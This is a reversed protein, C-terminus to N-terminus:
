FLSKQRSVGDMLELISHTVEEIQNDTLEKVQEKQAALFVLVSVPISLADSIAEITSLSPDRKEKEVLCLHSVSIGARNALESQKYGRKERILKITSGLNMNM